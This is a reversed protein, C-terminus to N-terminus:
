WVLRLAGPLVETSLPTSGVFEGDVQVLIPQPGDVSVTRSQWMKVKPISDFDGSYNNPMYRFVDLKTMREMLVVDVLGDDPTARPACVMGTGYYKGTALNLSFMQSEVREGNVQLTAPQNQWTALNAFVSILYSAASGHMQEVTRTVAAGFGLSVVNNSYLMGTKGDRGTFSTKVVDVPMVRGEHFRQVAEDYDLVFPQSTTRNRLMRYYDNGRGLPLLGVVPAREGAEALGNVIEHITGDGGAAVVMTVGQDCAERALQTAHKAAETVRVEGELGGKKLAAQAAKWPTGGHKITSPYSAIVLVRALWDPM